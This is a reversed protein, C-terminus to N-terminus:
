KKQKDSYRLLINLVFRFPSEQPGVGRHPLHSDFIIANGAVSSIMDHDKIISGGDCSNLHYIVSFYSSDDFDKDVHYIGTSASNYYNWLIRVLEIDQYQYKSKELVQEFIYQALINLKEIEYVEEDPHDNYSTLLMGTDSYGEISNDYSTQDMDSQIKCDYQDPSLNWGSQCRLQQIVFENFSDDCVNKILEFDAM